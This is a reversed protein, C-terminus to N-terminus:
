SAAPTHAGGKLHHISCALVIQTLCIDAYVGCFVACAPDQFCANLAIRVCEAINNGITPGYCVPSEVFRFNSNSSDFEFSAGFYCEGNNQMEIVYTKVDNAEQTKNITTALSYIAVNSGDEFTIVHFDSDSECKRLAYSILNMTDFQTAVSGIIEYDYNNRKLFPFHRMVMEKENETVDNYSIECVRCTQNQIESPNDRLNKEKDKKCGVFVATTITLVLIALYILRNKM